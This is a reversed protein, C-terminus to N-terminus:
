GDDDQSAPRGEIAPQVPDSAEGRIHLRWRALYELKAKEHRDVSLQSHGRGKEEIVKMRGLEEPTMDRTTFRLTFAFRNRVEEPTPLRRGGPARIDELMDKDSSVPVGEASLAGIKRQKFLDIMKRFVDQKIVAPFDDVSLVTGTYSIPSYVKGEERAIAVKDREIARATEHYTRAYPGLFRVDFNRGLVGVSLIYWRDATMHKAGDDGLEPAFNAFILVLPPPNMRVTRSGYKDSSFVGDRFEEALLYFGFNEVRSAKALNFMIVEPYYGRERQFQVVAYKADKVNSTTITMGKLHEEAYRITESKGGGGIYDKVWAIIRTDGFAKAEMFAILERQTDYLEEEPIVQNSPPPPRQRALELAKALPGAQTMPIGKASMAEVLARGEGEVADLDPLTLGVLKKRERPVEPEYNTKRLGGEKVHYKEMLHRWHSVNAVSRIHPRIIEYEPEGGEVQKRIVYDFFDMGRVTLTKSFEIAVHTHDYPVEKDKGTEQVYSFVSLELEADHEGLKEQLWDNYEDLDFHKKYTLHLRKNQIRSVPAEDGSALCLALISKEEEGESRARAAVAGGINALARQSNPTGQHSM